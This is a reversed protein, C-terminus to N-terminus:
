IFSYNLERLKNYECNFLANINAIAPQDQPPGRIRVIGFDLLPEFHYFNAPHSNVIEGVFTSGGRWNGLIVSKIPRGNKEM